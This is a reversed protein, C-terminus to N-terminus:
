WFVTLRVLIFVKMCALNKRLPFLLVEKQM